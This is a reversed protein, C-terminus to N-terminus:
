SAQETPCTEQYPLVPIYRAWEDRDLSGGAITCAHHVAYKRLDDLSTLDWLIATGDNSGTALTHGDPTFAVSTVSKLHDTLPQGLRRPRSRDAVDWLIVTHDSSGTALTQGDPAFAVSTVSKLHDTLPQGLRRPRSRDAVDWLIVMGDSSATALTHEDPAFAAATVATRHGTLPQGLQRPHDRDTVDELTVNGDPDGGIARTRGTPSLALSLTRDRYGAPPAELQHPRTRDTIDWGIDSGDSGRGVLTNGDFFVETVPTHHGLPPGLREPRNTLDWLFASGDGSTSALRHGDPAFAVSAVPGRHGAIVQELRTQAPDTIDWLSVIGDSGTALIRGNSTFAASYAPEQHGALLPGDRRPHSRDRVDWRVASGDGSTTALTQGDPAFAVSTVPGSHGTREQEPNLWRPHARDTVDWLHPTGDGDGIALTQGAPAFAVSVASGGSGALPEGLAHANARDTVDWLVTTGDGGGTALTRGDPAFAVSVVSHQKSVPRGFAHPQGTFPQGYADAGHRGPLEWLLISGDSGGTALTQGDSAFAVSSVTGSDNRLAGRYRMATLTSLLGSHTEDGPHIRYAAVALQLAVRPDVDRIADAQAILQRATAIQQQSRADRQNIVAVGAGALTLILLATSTIAFLMTRRARRREAEARANDSDISAALFTRAAPALSDHRGSTEVRERALALRTGRYLLDPDDGSDRWTKADDSLGQEVILASRDTDIWSRLAPWAHLLAEHTIQVTDQGITLLRAKETAFADLVAEVASGDPYEAILEARSRRRRTDEGGDASVHVLRLLLWRAAAQGAKDLAAYVREATTAVADDIGGTAAYGAATLLRDDRQQWTTLLAYSLLPLVSVGHVRGSGVSDVAGGIGLDRLLMEVLGAELDLGVEQAPRRIVDILDARTMPGVPVQGDSLGGVLEPHETARGYFDARMGIVVLAPPPINNRPTSAATLARVFAQQDTAPIDNTFLEEFQDVVLLMRPTPAAAGTTAGPEATYGTDAPMAADVASETLDTARQPDDALLARVAEPPSGTARALLSALEALPDSGPTIVHCPWEWSGPVDLKGARVAPILGARLLSSKGSGSAGVVMVPRPDTLRDTLRALLSATLTDRGFFFRADNPGYAELGRYPCIDEVPDPDTDTHSDPRLTEQDGGPQGPRRSPPPPRYARNDTLMLDGARGGANRRPEPRGTAPLARALYRYARELTLRPPGTPDGRTLLDILAGTFATHREGPLALAADEPAAATLLYSDRVATMAFVDDTGTLLAASARGAFCCDLVVAVTRARCNALTDRLARYPFAQYNPTPPRTLDLSASTALHLEGDPSLLGHGVYYVLLVDSAEQAATSVANDFVIPDAPDVLTRLGPEPLGCRDTLCRALDTVTRTVAPVDPLRSGPEHTSTGVLLMRVGPNALGTM